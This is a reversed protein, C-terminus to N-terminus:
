AACHVMHRGSHKVVTHYCHSLRAYAADALLMICPGAAAAASANTATVTATAATCGSSIDNKNIRLLRLVQFLRMADNADAQL